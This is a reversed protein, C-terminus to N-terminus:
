ASEREPGQDAPSQGYLHMAGGRAVGRRDNLGMTAESRLSQRILSEGQPPYHIQM